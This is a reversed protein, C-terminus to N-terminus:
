IEFWHNCFDVCFNFDNCTLCEDFPIRRSSAPLMKVTRSRMRIPIHSYTSIFEEVDRDTVLGPDSLRNEKVANRVIQIQPIDQPTAERFISM